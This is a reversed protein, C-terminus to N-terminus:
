NDTQLATNYFWEKANNTKEIRNEVDDPIISFFDIGTLSEISDVPVAYTDLENSCKENPMIFGIIREKGDWIVKYYNAPVTVKNAGIHKVPNSYIAGAVIYEEGLALVWDREKTELTKWRGRNLSPNQPSMNSMFFSEDMATQNITMSAAPCLHGRDYGAGAYDDPTASGTSVAPDERFNDKRVATGNVFEPTLHYLVWLAGEDEESYALKYYTHEILEGGSVPLITGQEAMSGDVDILQGNCSAFALLLLLFIRM